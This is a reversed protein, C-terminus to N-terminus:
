DISQVQLPMHSREHLLAGGEAALVQGVGGSVVVLRKGDASWRLAAAGDAHDLTQTWVLERSESDVVSLEIEDRWNERLKAVAVASGAPSPVVATPREGPLEIATWSDQDALYLADWDAYMSRGAHDRAFMDGKECPLGLEACLPTTMRMSIGRLDGWASLEDGSAEHAQLSGAIELLWVTPERDDSLFGITGTRDLGPVFRSSGQWMPRVPLVLQTRLNGSDLDVIGAKHYGVIVARGRKPVAVALPTGLEHEHVTIANAGVHDVFLERSSVWVALLGTADLGGDILTPTPHAFSLSKPQDLAGVVLRRGANVDISARVGNVISAHMRIGKDEDPLSVDAEGSAPLAIAQHVLRKALREAFKSDPHLDEAKRPEVAQALEVIWAQGSGSELLLRENEHFHMRPRVKSDVRGAILKRTDTALDILEVSWQRGHKDPRRLAAVTKGDPSLALDNRNPGRDLEVARAPGAIEFEDDVLQLPQVRLPQALIAALKPQEGVGGSVRLQWPGFGREDLASILEGDSSYLRVRHDVGLALIREGGDLVHLELLPDEPSLAFGEAITAPGEAPQEVKYITAANNTGIFALTYGSGRKGLSLWLPEFMPIRYPESASADAVLQPWLRVGGSADLTLAAEGRPDLVVETIGGQHAVGRELEAWSSSPAVAAAEPEPEPEPARQQDVVVATTQPGAHCAVLALSLSSFILTRM